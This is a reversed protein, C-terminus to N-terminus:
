KKGKNKKGKKKKKAKGGSPGQAAQEEGGAAEEDGDGTEAESTQEADGKKALESRDLEEEPQTGRVPDTAVKTIGPPAGEASQIGNADDEDGSSSSIVIKRVGSPAQVYSETISGTRCPEPTEHSAASAITDTSVNVPHRAEELDRRAAASVGAESRHIELDDRVKPTIELTADRSGAATSSGYNPTNHITADSATAEASRPGLLPAREGEIELDDPELTLEVQRSSPTAPTAVSGPKITITSSKINKPNAAPNSPSLHRGLHKKVDDVNHKVPVTASELGPGTSRRRMMFTATKPSGSSADGQGNASYSRKSDQDTQRSTDDSSNRLANLSERRRFTTTPAPVLRRIAKHM